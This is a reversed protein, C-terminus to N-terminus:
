VDRGNIPDYRIHTKGGDMNPIESEHPPEDNNTKTSTQQLDNEVPVASMLLGVDWDDWLLSQVHHTQDRTLQIGRLIARLLRLPYYAAEAARGGFSTSSLATQSM